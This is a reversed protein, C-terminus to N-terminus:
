RDRRLAFVQVHDLAPRNGRRRLSLRGEVRYFQAAGCEEVEFLAPEVVGARDGLGLRQHAQEDVVGEVALFQRRAGHDAVQLAEAPWPARRFTWTFLSASAPMTVLTKMSASSAWTSAAANM